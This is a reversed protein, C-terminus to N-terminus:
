QLVKSCTGATNAFIDQFKWLDSRQQLKRASFLYFVAEKPQKIDCLHNTQELSHTVIDHTNCHWSLLKSTPRPRIQCTIVTSGEWAMRSSSLQFCSVEQRFEPMKFPGLIWCFWSFELHFLFLALSLLLPVLLGFVCYDIFWAHHWIMKFISDYARVYPQIMINSVSLYWLKMIEM